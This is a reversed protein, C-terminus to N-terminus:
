KRKRFEIKDSLYLKQEHHIESEEESYYSLDYSLDGNSNVIRYGNDFSAVLNGTYINSECCSYAANFGKDIVFPYIEEFFGPEVFSKFYIGFTNNNGNQGVVVHENVEDPILIQAFDYEGQLTYVRKGDEVIYNLEQVNPYGPWKEFPAANEYESDVIVNSILFTERQKLQNYISVEIKKLQNVLEDINTNELSVYTQYSSSDKDITDINCNKYIETDFEFVNNYDGYGLTDSFNRFDFNYNAWSTHPYAMLIGIFAKNDDSPIVVTCSEVKKLDNKVSQLQNHIRVELSGFVKGVNEESLENSVDLSITADDYVVLYQFYSAAIYGRSVIIRTIEEETNKDLITVLKSGMLNDDYGTITEDYSEINFMEEESITHVEGIKIPNDENYSLTVLGDFFDYISRNEESIMVVDHDIQIRNEDIKKSCSVLTSVLCTLVLSIIIFSRGKSKKKMDVLNLLREKLTKKDQNFRTSLVTNSNKIQSRLVQLITAGYDKRYVLDKNRLVIEDCSLEIDKDAEKLMIYVLPNFWHICCNLMLIWKFLIDHRLYHVYEHKLIMNMQYDNLNLDNIIIKPHILGVLMPSSVLKSQVIKIKDKKDINKLIALVNEEISEESTRILHKFRVYKVIQVTLMWTFGVLWILIVSEMLTITKSNTDIELDVPADVFFSAGMSTTESRSLENQTNNANLYITKNPIKVQYSSPLSINFPLLLRVAIFLWIFYRVSTAYHHKCLPKILMLFGICIAMTVSVEILMLFMKEM